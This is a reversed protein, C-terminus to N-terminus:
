APTVVSARGQNTQGPISPCVRGGCVSSLVVHFGSCHHGRQGHRKAGGRNRNGGKGVTAHHRAPRMAHHASHHPRATRLPHHRVEGRKVGIAIAQHGLGLDHSPPLALDFPEVGIAVPQQAGLFQDRMLHLLHLGPDFGLHRPLDRRLIQVAIARQRRGLQHGRRHRHLHEVPNIRVVIAPHTGLLELGGLRSHGIVHLAALIAAPALAVAARAALM